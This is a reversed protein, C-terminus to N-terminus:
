KWSVLSAGPRREMMTSRWVSLLILDTCGKGGRLRISQSMELVAEGSDEHDSGGVQSVAEM